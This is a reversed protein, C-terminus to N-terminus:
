GRCSACPKRGTTKHRGSFFPARTWMSMQDGLILLDLGATASLSDRPKILEVRLKAFPVQFFFSSVRGRLIHGLGRLIVDGCLLHFLRPASNAAAPAKQIPCGLPKIPFKWKGKEGGPLFVLPARSGLLLGAESGM